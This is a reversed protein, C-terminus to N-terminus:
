YLCASAQASMAQSTSDAQSATSAIAGPSAYSALYYDAFCTNKCLDINM